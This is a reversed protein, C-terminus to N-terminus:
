QRVVLITKSVSRLELEGLRATTEYVWVGLHERTYEVHLGGPWECEYTTIKPAEATTNTGRWVRIEVETLLESFEPMLVLEGGDMEQWVSPVPNRFTGQSGSLDVEDGIVLVEELGGNHLSTGFVYREKEGDRDLDYSFYCPDAIPQGDDGFQGVWRGEQLSVLVESMFGTGEGPTEILTETTIDDSTNSDISHLTSNSKRGDLVYSLLFVCILLVIGTLAAAGPLNPRQRKKKKDGEEALDDLATLLERVGCYRRDVNVEICKEIVSLCPGEALRKAPHQGTLMENFLVGLAYIDARADTQNFGYQEPAAYGATGMIRTDSSGEKKQLRSADFDILVAENGRLIINEPKIDRHVIGLRHLEDLATCLQRTILVAQETSLPNYKLLDSLTDGQIFEELVRVTDKEQEVFEVAPLYPSCVGMLKEYVASDGSFCRYIRRRNDAKGRVLWVISRESSKLQKEVWFDCLIRDNRRESM